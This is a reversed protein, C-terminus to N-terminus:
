VCIHACGMSKDCQDNKHWFTPLFKGFNQRLLKARKRLRPTTKNMDAIQRWTNVLKWNNKVPMSPSFCATFNDTFIKAITLPTEIRM